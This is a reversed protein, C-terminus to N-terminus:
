RSRCNDATIDPGTDERVDLARFQYQRLLRKLLRRLDQIAHDPRGELRLLFIPRPRPDRRAMM